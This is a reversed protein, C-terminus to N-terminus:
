HLGHPTLHAAATLESLTRGGFSFVLNFPSQHCSLQVFFRQRMDRVAKMSDACIKHGTGQIMIWVKM